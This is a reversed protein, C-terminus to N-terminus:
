KGKKANKIQLLQERIQYYPSGKPVKWEEHDTVQVPWNGSNDVHTAKPYYLKLGSYFNGYEKHQEYASTKTSKIHAYIEHYLSEALEFGDLKSSGTWYKENLTIISVTRGKSRSVDKGNFSSANDKTEQSANSFDIKGDKVKVNKATAAVADSSNGEDDKSKFTNLGIYIDNESSGAYENWLKKGDDTKLLNGIAEWVQLVNKSDWNIFISDGDVDIFNVPNNAAYHYPSLYDYKEAYADQTFFRGVQPDYMRWGYDLWELGSGDTFEQRQEEKGNFKLKNSPSGFNLAKSSIGSMTLGFPYYHTEEILPGHTQILQLNDFFVDMDSENSCYVYLYGNRTISITQHHNKLVNNNTSVADCGTMSGTITNFQEDMFVWNIFAKPMTSNLPDHATGDLWSILPATTGTSNNLDSGTIGTPQIFDQQSAPSLNM